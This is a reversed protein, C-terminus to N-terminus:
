VRSMGVFYMTTVQSIIYIHIPTIIYGRPFTKWVIDYEGKFFSLFFGNTEQFSIITPMGLYSTFLPVVFFYSFVMIALLRRTLNFHQNDSKRALNIADLNQKQTSLLFEHKQQMWVRGFGLIAGVGTGAFAADMFDIM